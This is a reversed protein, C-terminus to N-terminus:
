CHSVVEASEAENDFGGLTRAGEGPDIKSDCPASQGALNDM